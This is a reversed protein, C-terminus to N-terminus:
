LIGLDYALLVCGLCIRLRYGPRRVCAANIRSAVKCASGGMGGTRASRAIAGNVGRLLGQAYDAGVIREPCEITSETFFISIRICELILQLAFELLDIRICVCHPARPMLPHLGRVVPIFLKSLINSRGMFGERVIL